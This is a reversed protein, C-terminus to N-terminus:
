KTELQKETIVHFEYGKSRAIQSAAEWKSENTLWTKMANINNKNKPPHTECESKVEVWITKRAAGARVVLTFDIFYRRVKNTAKDFYKICQPEYCWAIVNPNSDCYRMM